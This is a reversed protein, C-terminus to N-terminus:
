GGFVEGVVKGDNMVPTDVDTMGAGFDYTANGNTEEHLMAFYTEGAVFDYGITVALNVNDGAKVAVHGISAPVVPAGGLVTHIVLYGDSKAMVNAFTATAGDIRIGAVDIMPTMTGDMAANMMEATVTFTQIVAAGDAVVPTDVNTMGEAFDYTDNGNSEVHLMVAFTTGEPLAEDSAVTVKMNEGAKIPTHGISAPAVVAGDKVAHLVIYGDKSATVSGIMVDSGSISIDGAGIMDQASAAGAILTVLATTAIFRKM